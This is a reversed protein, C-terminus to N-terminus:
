KKQPLAEVGIAAAHLILAQSAQKTELHVRADRMWDRAVNKPEGKLLSMYKVAQRLDGRDLSGRALWVVEFTTLAELDLGTTKSPMEETSPAMVFMSQLYSLAYTMLGGGDEGVLATRKALAEVKLFRDKIDNETSVGQPGSAEAPISALVSKVYADTTTQEGLIKKISDLEKKLSRNPCASTNELAQSLASCALWLEQAELSARDMDARKELATHLGKIHGMIGAMEERQGLSAKELTEDMERTFARTAEKQQIDLADKLHDTHAESQRKLQRRMEEEMEVKMDTVRRYLDKELLIQSEKDPDLESMSANFAADDAASSEKKEEVKKEEKKEEQKKEEAKKVAPKDSKKKEEPEPVKDSAFSPKELPPAPVIPMVADKKITTAAPVTEKDKEDVVDVKIPRKKSPPVSTVSFNSTTPKKPAAPKAPEPDGLVASFITSAGPVTEETLRRFDPDVGAYAVGGGVVGVATVGLGLIAKGGGGGGGSAASSSQQRFQNTRRAPSSRAASTVSSRILAQSSTRLM